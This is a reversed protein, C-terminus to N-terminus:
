GRGRKVLKEWLAKEFKARIEELAVYGGKEKLAVHDYVRGGPSRRHPELRLSAKTYAHNLSKVRVFLRGDIIEIDKEPVKLAAAEAAKSGLEKIRLELGTLVDQCELRRGKGPKMYLDTLVEAEADPILASRLPLVPQGYYRFAKFFIGFRSRAPLVKIADLKRWDEDLPVLKEGLAKQIMPEMTLTDWVWILQDASLDSHEGRAAWILKSWEVFHIDRENRDLYALWQIGSMVLDAIEPAYEIIPSFNKSRKM